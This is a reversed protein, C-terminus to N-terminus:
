TLQLDEPTLYRHAAIPTVENSVPDLPPGVDGPPAPLQCLAPHPTHCPAAAMRVGGDDGSVVLCEGSEGEAGGESVEGEVLAGTVWRWEGLVKRGGLWYPPLPPTSSQVSPNLPHLTLATPPISVLDGGVARCRARASAWGSADGPLASICSGGGGESGKTAAATPCWWWWWWRKWDLADEGDAGEANGGGVAARIAVEVQFLRRTLSLAVEQMAKTLHDATAQASAVAASSISTVAADLYGLSAKRLKELGRNSKNLTERVTRFLGAEVEAMRDEVQNAQVHLSTSLYIRLGELQEEVQVLREGLAERVADELETATITTATTTSTTTTATTNLADQGAVTCVPPREEEELAETEEEQQDDEEEEEEEEKQVEEAVEKDDQLLRHLTLNSLQLINDLTEQLVDQYDQLHLDQSPSVTSTTSINTCGNIEKTENAVIEKMEEVKTEVRKFSGQLHTALRAHFSSLSSHFGDQLLRHRLSLAHLVAGLRKDMALNSIRIRNIVAATLYHTTNISPEILNKLHGVAEQCQRASASGEQLGEEVRETLNLLLSTLDLPSPTTTIDTNNQTMEVMEVENQQGQLTQNVEVWTEEVVERLELLRGDMDEVKGGLGEVKDGVERVNEDLVEVSEKVEVVEEDVKVLRGQVDEVKGALEEVRATLSEVLAKLNVEREQLVLSIVDIKEELDDLKGIKATLGDLKRIASEQRVFLGALPDVAPPAATANM